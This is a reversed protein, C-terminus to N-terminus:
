RRQYWVPAGPVRIELNGERRQFFTALEGRPTGPQWWPDFGDLHVWTTGHMSDLRWHGEIAPGPGGFTHRYTGDPRLILQDQFEFAYSGAVEGASMPAPESCAALLLAALLAKNM